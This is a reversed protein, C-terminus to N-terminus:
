RQHLGTKDEFLEHKIKQQEPTRIEGLIKIGIAM